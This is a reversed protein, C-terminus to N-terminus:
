FNSASGFTSFRSQSNSCFEKAVDGESIKRTKDKHIHLVAVHNLRAATMTSRTYSKLRRLASFSREASASSIPVTLLLQLLKNIESFIHRAEGLSLMATVLESLNTVSHAEGEAVYIASRLMKLQLQLRPVELDGEFYLTVKSLELDYKEDSSNEDNAALILLREACAYIEFSQQDFRGKVFNIVCDLFEYYISRYFAAATEYKAVEGGEDIRKPPKRRRPMEPKSLDLKIADETVKKWFHEFEGERRMTQLFSTLVDAARKAADATISKKQLLRSLEEAQGFVVVGLRLGFFTNFRQFTAALGSAKSGADGKDEVAIVELTTLIAEYNDIVSQMAAEKMTWRTPCLQRLSSSTSSVANLNENDSALKSRINEFAVRRKASARVINNLEKVYDLTDRVLPITRTADQMALNLSHACCHVFLAKPCLALIRAQVGSFHGAMNSAGDYCQGRCDNINLGLRLLVDQIIRVLTEANTSGTEYFGIFYEEIEMLKNVFRLCISVQEKVSIDTTEDVIIAFWRNQRIEAAIDRLIDNSMIQLIENQIDHSLWNHRKNLWEDLIPVDSSRLQLLSVLNGSAESHGRIALGQAALYKLSGIVKLLALRWKHQDSKQQKEISASVDVNKLYFNWKM